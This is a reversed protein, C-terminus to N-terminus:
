SMPSATVVPGVGDVGDVGDGEGDGVSTAGPLVMVDILAGVDAVGTALGTV